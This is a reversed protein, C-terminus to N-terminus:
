LFKAIAFLDRTLQACLIDLADVIVLTTTRTRTRTRLSDKLVFKFNQDQDQDKSSLDKDKDKDKDQDKVSLDQDQDKLFLGQNHRQIKKTANVYDNEAFGAELCVYYTLNQKSSM